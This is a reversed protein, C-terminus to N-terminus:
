FRKLTVKKLLANLLKMESMTRAYDSTLFAVVVNSLDVINKLETESINSDKLSPTNIFHLNKFSSAYSSRYLKYHPFIGGNKNKDFFSMFEKDGRFTTSIDSEPISFVSGFESESM